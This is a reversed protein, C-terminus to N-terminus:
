KRAGSDSRRVSPFLEMDTHPLFLAATYEHMYAPSVNLELYTIRQALESAKERAERSRLMAHAGALASNGLYTFSELPLDPLLGIAISKQLDLFRGFGGAVYVREVAALEMGISKLM